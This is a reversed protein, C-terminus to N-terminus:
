KMINIIKNMVDFWWVVFRTKGLKKWLNKETQPPSFSFLSKTLGFNLFFRNQVLLINTKKKLQELHSFKTTHYTTTIDRVLYIDLFLTAKFGWFEKIAREVKSPGCFKKSQSRYCSRVTKINSSHRFFYFEFFIYIIQLISKICASTLTTQFPQDPMFRWYEPVWQVKNLVNQKQSNRSAIQFKRGFRGATQVTLKLVM